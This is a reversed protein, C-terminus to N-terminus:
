PAQAASGSRTHDVRRRLHELDACMTVLTLLILGFAAFIGNWGALAWGVLPFPWCGLGAAAFLFVWRRRTSRLTIPLDRLTALREVQRDRERRAADRMKWYAFFLVPTTSLIAAIGLSLITTELM